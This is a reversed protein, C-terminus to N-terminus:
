PGRGYLAAAQGADLPLDWVAFLKVTGRWVHEGDPIFESNRNQKWAERDLAAIELFEGAKARTIEM